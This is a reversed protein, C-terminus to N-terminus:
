IISYLIEHTVGVFGREEEGVGLLGEAVGDFVEEFVDFGELM